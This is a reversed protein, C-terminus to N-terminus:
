EWIFHGPFLTDLRASAQNGDQCIKLKKERKEIERQLQRGNGKLIDVKKSLSVIEDLMM